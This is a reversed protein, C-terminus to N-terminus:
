LETKHDEEEGVAGVITSISKVRPYQNDLALKANRAKPFPAEDTCLAGHPVNGKHRRGLTTRITAGLLSM